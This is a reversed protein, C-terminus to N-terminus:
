GGAAHIAAGLGELTPPGVLRQDGILFTPTSNFGRGTADSLDAQVADLYTGADVCGEFPSRDLGLQTGLAKLRDKTWTGSNEGGQSRYLVDHYEWFKGQAGACRAGNAASRSEPGIWPFDHWELRARGTDIFATRFSAEVLRAWAGCSPCQFDGYERVVVPASAQGLVPRAEASRVSPQSTLATAVVVTAVALAAVVLIAPFAWRRISRM